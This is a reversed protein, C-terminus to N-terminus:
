ITVSAPKHSDWIAAVEQGENTVADDDCATPVVVLRAKERGALEIFKDRVADPLKGGGCLVLAGKIGDPDIRDTPVPEAARLATQSTVFPSVALTLLAAFLRISRARRSHAIHAM